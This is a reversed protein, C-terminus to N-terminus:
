DRASPPEHGRQLPIGHASPSCNGTYLGHGTAAAAQEAPSELAPVSVNCLESGLHNKRESLPLFPSQFCCLRRMEQQELQEGKAPWSM